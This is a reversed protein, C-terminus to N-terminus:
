VLALKSQVLKQLDAQPRAGIHSIIEGACIAAIHGCRELPYGAALGFLFGGAYLDGAGTTDVVNVKEAAIPITNNRDVVLSGQDSRTIVGLNCDRRMHSIAEDLDGTQYFSIIESENAFLIDVHDHVFRRIEDRYRDVLWADSLTLAVRNGGAHSLGAALQLHPRVSAVDWLYGEIFFIKSKALLHEDIDSKEIGTCAGLFTNMTRQGDPTVCIMSRATSPGAGTKATKFHVGLSQMDNAFINGVDDEKVKGIYAVRSGLMAAGVCSNAVAGGAVTKPSPLAKYIREAEEQSVLTMAGKRMNHKSIFQEDISALVDVIANGIGLLDYPSSM